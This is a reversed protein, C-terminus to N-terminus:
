EVGPPSWNENIKIMAGLIFYGGICNRELSPVCDDERWWNIVRWQGFGGFPQMILLEVHYEAPLLYFSLM